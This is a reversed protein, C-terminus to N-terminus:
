ETKPVKAGSLEGEGHAFNCQYQFKCTKGAMWDRCLKTKLKTEEFWRKKKAAAAAIGDKKEKAADAAKAEDDAKKKADDDEVKKKAMADESLKLLKAEHLLEMDREHHRYESERFLKLAAEQENFKSKLEFLKQQFDLKQSLYNAHHALEQDHETETRCSTMFAEDERRRANRAELAFLNEEAMRVEVITLLLRKAAWHDEEMKGMEAKSLPQITTDATFTVTTSGAVSNISWRRPDGHDGHDPSRYPLRTTWREAHPHPSTM